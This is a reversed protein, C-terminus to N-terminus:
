LQYKIEVAAEPTREQLVACGMEVSVAWHLRSIDVKLLALRKSLINCTRLIYALPFFVM